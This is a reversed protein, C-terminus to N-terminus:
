NNDIMVLILKVCRVKKLLSEKIHLGDHFSSSDTEYNNWVIAKCKKRHKKIFFSVDKRSFISIAVYLFEKSKQNYWKIEKNTIMYRQPNKSLVSDM